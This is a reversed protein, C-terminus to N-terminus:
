ERDDSRYKMEFISWIRSQYQHVVLVNQFHDYTPPRSDSTPEWSSSVVFDLVVPPGM